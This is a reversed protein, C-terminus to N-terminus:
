SFIIPAKRWYKDTNDTVILIPSKGPYAIVFSFRSAGSPGALVIGCTIGSAYVVLYKYLRIIYQYIYIAINRPRDLLVILRRTPGLRAPQCLGSWRRKTSIGVLYLGIM